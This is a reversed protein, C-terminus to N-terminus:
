GEREIFTLCHEGIERRKVFLGPSTVLSFRKLHQIVLVGEEGILPFYISILDRYAGFTYPPDAFIVSYPAFPFVRNLSHMVDGKVVLAREQYGALVLNERILGVMEGKKEVLVARSAGRSLAEIAVVGTGAFLDMFCAGKIRERLVDFLIERIRGLTPRVQLGKPSKLRRGRAEGGTIRIV